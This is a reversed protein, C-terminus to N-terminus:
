HLKNRFPIIKDRDSDGELANQLKEVFEDFAEKREEEVSKPLPNNKLNDVYQDILIQNPQAACIIHTPNILVLDNHNRFMMFPKFTYYRIGEDPNFTDIITFANRVVVTLDTGDEEDIEWDVVECLIEEGTSLKLQKVNNM